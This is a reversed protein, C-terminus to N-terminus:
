STLEGISHEERYREIYELLEGRNNSVLGDMVAEFADSLVVGVGKGAPIGLAMVDHGNVKLDKVRFPEKSYKYEYYKQLVVSRKLYEHYRERPNKLNAQQDCYNLLLLDEVAVGNDELQSFLKIYVAKRHEMNFGFMHYQVLTAIYDTDAKSFKLRSLIDRCMDSGVVNHKKFRVRKREDADIISDDVVFERCPGKGIDHLFSALCLVTNDTLRRAHRFSFTSHELVTEAHHQGGDVRLAAVEPILKDLMHLKDLVNMADEYECINLLEDHIREAPIGSLDVNILESLLGYHVGNSDIGYKCMFRVARLARLRDEAIRNRPNGVCSISGKRLDYGGGFPDFVHGDIDAYMANFRFDCTALHADLSTGTKTREPNARYSSVEIGDVIVTLIKEQREDGGLIKGEPFLELIEDGTANTFIDYDKIPYGMVFDRVAGGIIYADYGNDVFRHMLSRVGDPIPMNISGDM